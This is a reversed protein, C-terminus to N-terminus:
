TFYFSIFLHYVFFSVLEFSHSSIIFSPSLYLFFSFTFVGSFSCRFFFFIVFASIRAYRTVSVDACKMKQWMEFINWSVKKEQFFCMLNSFTYGGAVDSMRLAIQIVKRAIKIKRKHNSQRIFTSVAHYPLFGPAVRFFNCRDFFGFMVLKQNSKQFHFHLMKHSQSLKWFTCKKDFSKKENMKWFHAARMFVDIESGRV